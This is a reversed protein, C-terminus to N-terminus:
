IGTSVVVVAVSAIVDPVLLATVTGEATGLRALLVSM